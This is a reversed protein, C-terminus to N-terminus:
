SAADTNYVSQLFDAVVDSFRQPSEEHPIHGCNDMIVISATPLEEALRVSNDLPVFKDKEGHVILIPPAAHGLSSLISVYDRDQRLDRARDNLSARTFNLIGREWDPATVPRRYGAVVEDPLPSEPARAFKLANRWFPEPTVCLRLLPVLLPSLVATLAGSFAALGNAFCRTTRAVVPPARSAPLLAPAILVIAIIERPHAVAACAASIAGMSHAMIIYSGNPEYAQALSRAVTASFRPTYYHLRSPRSTLGFGPADYAVVRAHERLPRCVEFSFLNAGFGHLCVAIPPKSATDSNNDTTLLKHHVIVGDVEAYRSDADGESSRREPLNTASSSRALGPTAQSTFRPPSSSASSLRSTTFATSYSVLDSDSSGRLIAMASSDRFRSCRTDFYLRRTSVRHSVLHLASIAPLAGTTVRSLLPLSVTPVFALSVGLRWRVNTFVPDGTWLM